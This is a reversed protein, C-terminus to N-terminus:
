CHLFVWIWTRDEDASMTDVDPPLWPFFSLGHSCKDEQMLRKFNNIMLIINTYTYKWLKYCLLMSKFEKHQIKRRCWEFDKYTHISRNGRQCQQGFSVTHVPGQLGALPLFPFLKLNNWQDEKFLWQQLFTLPTWDPTCVTIMTREHWDTKFKSFNSALPPNPTSPYQIGTIQFSHQMASHSLEYTLLLWIRVQLNLDKPKAKNITTLDKHIDTIFMTHM